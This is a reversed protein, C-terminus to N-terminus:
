KVEGWPILGNMFYKAVGIINDEKILGISRSDKSGNIKRNDGMVFYYGEPIVFTKVEKNNDDKYSFEGNFDESYVFSDLYGEELYTEEVLSDNIYLKKNVWRVKDGPMGIIRKIYYTKGVVNFNDEENVELVVVDFRDVKDLYSVLISDGDNITPNMSTGSIPTIIFIFIYFFIAITACIPLIMGWDLINFLLKKTKYKNNKFLNNIFNPCVLNLIIYILGICGIAYCIIMIINIYKIIDSSGIEDCYISNYRDSLSFLPYIISCIIFALLRRIIKSKITLRDALENNEKYYDVIVNNTDKM